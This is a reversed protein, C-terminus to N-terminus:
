IHKLKQDLVHDHLVVKYFRDLNQFQAGTSYGHKGSHHHHSVNRIDATLDLDEESDCVELTFRLQIAEGANGLSKMSELRVGTYSLDKIVVPQWNRKEDPQLTNRALAPISTEVREANRVAISEMEEPFSLHIYPYPKVSSKLVTTKFGYVHSGRLMRVAFQQGDRVFQIKGKITPATVLLSEGALFGIVSVTYRDDKDPSIHQLQVVDGIQLKLIDEAM